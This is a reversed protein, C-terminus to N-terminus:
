LGAAKRVADNIRTQWGPGAAKIRDLAESDLRLTVQTKSSTLSGLPRGRRRERREVLAQNVSAETVDFDESDNPDAGLSILEGNTM